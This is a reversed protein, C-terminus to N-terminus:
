KGLVKPVKIYDSDKQPANKLAEKQPIMYNVEDERLTDAEDNVYILPEVGDTDVENLQEVFELVRDLDAKIEARSAVDFELRALGAIRDVTADDITSNQSPKM